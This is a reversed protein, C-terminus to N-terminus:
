AAYWSSRCASMSPGEPLLRQPHPVVHEGGPHARVVHRGDQGDREQSRAGQHHGHREERAAVRAPVVLHRVANGLGGVVPHDRHHGGLESRPLHSRHREIRAQDASLPHQPGPLEEVQGVGLGPTRRVHPTPEPRHDRPPGACRGIGPRPRAPRRTRNVSTSPRRGAVTRSWNAVRGPSCGDAGGPGYGSPHCWDSRSGGSRFPAEVVMPLSADRSASPVATVARPPESM